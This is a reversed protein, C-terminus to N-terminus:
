HNHHLFKLHNENMKFFIGGVRSIMHRCMDFTIYIFIRTLTCHKQVCFPQPFNYFYVNEEPHEYHRNYQRVFGLHPICKSLGNYVVVSIFLAWFSLAAKEGMFTQLFFLNLIMDQWFTFSEFYSTIKMQHKEAKISSWLHEQFPWYRSLCQGNLVWLPCHQILQWVMKLFFCFRVADM